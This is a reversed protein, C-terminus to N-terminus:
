KKECQKCRGFIEHRHWLSKFRVQRTIEDQLKEITPNTFEIVRNCSVCIMHDHHPKSFKHEYRHKGDPFNIKDLFGADELLHLTRFVTARGLSPDQENLDRYIEESTVHKKTGLLYDLIQRRQKTVKLGKQELLNRFALQPKSTKM